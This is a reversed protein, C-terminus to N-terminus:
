ELEEGIEVATRVIENPKALITEGDMKTLMWEMFRVIKEETDLSLLILVIDEEQMNLKREIDHLGIILDRKYPNKSTLRAM